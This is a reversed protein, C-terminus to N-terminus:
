ILKLLIIKLCNNKTIHDHHGHTIFVAKVQCEGKSLGPMGCFEEASEPSVSPDIVFLGSSGAIIYM